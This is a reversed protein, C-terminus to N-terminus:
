FGPTLSLEWYWGKDPRQFPKVYDVEFVAYGMLNIRMAAGTSYVARNDGSCFQPNSGDCYALGGDAFVNHGRGDPRDIVALSRFVPAASTALCVDVLAYGDDRGNFCRM